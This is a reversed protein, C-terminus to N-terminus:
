NPPTLSLVETGLQNQACELARGPGILQWHGSQKKIGTDDAKQTFLLRQEPGRTEAWETVLVNM